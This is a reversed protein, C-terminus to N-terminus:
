EFWAPGYLNPNARCFRYELRTKIGPKISKLLISLKTRSSIGAIDATKIFLFISENAIGRFESKKSSRWDIQRNGNHLSGILEIDSSLTPNILHIVILDNTQYGAKKLNIDLPKETEILTDIYHVKQHGTSENLYAIQGGNFYRHRAQKGTWHELLPVIGPHSGSNVALIIPIRNFASERYKEWLRQYSFPINSHSIFKPLCQSSEHWLHYMLVDEPGDALLLKNQGCHAKFAKAQEHYVDKRGDGFYNSKILGYGMLLATAPVILTVKKEHILSILGMFFFPTSFLLVSHQLVPKNLWSWVFGFIMPFLFVSFCLLAWGIANKDVPQRRMFLSCILIGLVPYLMGNLLYQLHKVPFDFGPKGLWDLGGFGLQHFFVPLAPAFLLLGTFATLLWKLRHENQKVLGLLGLILVPLLAFYHLWACVSGLVGLLIFTWNDTRKGTWILSWQWFYVNSFFMGLAYPRIQNGWLLPLYSLGYLLTIGLAKTPTTLTKATKYIFYVAGLSFLALVGHMLPAYEGFFRVWLWILTQMGPPHGDPMVGQQWHENWTAAKARFIASLEDYTFAVENIDWFRIFASIILIGILGIRLSKSSV